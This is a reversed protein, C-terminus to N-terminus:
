AAFFLFGYIATDIGFTLTLLAMIYGVEKGFVSVANKTPFGAMTFLGFFLMGLGYALLNIEIVADTLRTGAFFRSLDVLPGPTVLILSLAWVFLVLGWSTKRSLLYSAPDIVETVSDDRM